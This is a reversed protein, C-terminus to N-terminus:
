GSIWDSLVAATERNASYHMWRGDKRCSVLGAACLQKVHHSLTPQTIDMQELIKCACIDDKDKIAQYIRLRTPDGLAKFAAALSENDMTEEQRDPLKLIDRLNMYQCIDIHSRYQRRLM